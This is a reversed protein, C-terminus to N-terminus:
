EEERWEQQRSIDQEIKRILDLKCAVEELLNQKWDKLEEISM